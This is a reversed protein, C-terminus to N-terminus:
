KKFFTKISEELPTGKVAELLGEIGGKQFIGQLGGGQAKLNEALIRNTEISGMAIMAEIMHPQIASAKEFTEHISIDSLQKTKDIEFTTVNKRRGLESEAIKDLDGQKALEIDMKKKEALATAEITQLELTSRHLKTTSQETAKQREIDEATKAFNLEEQKKKLELNLQVINHQTNNLLLSIQKDLININLIEVDYILMGNEEFKRGARKGEKSEGLIVNRLIDTAGDNFTEISLKKIHNRVVSRLHQTLLKVYNSVSFWKKADEELFNVRYSLRVEVDVLDQTVANVIDSVVNNQTLLYTTKLLDHDTKPKGTSLELVELTEDYELLITKPGMEVRREGTKKVVQVAYGPWVNITVAGDYKTDLTITRPKTYQNSKQLEDAVSSLMSTSKMLRGSHGVAENVELFDSVGYQATKEQLRQNYNLAEDNGPFLLEISKEDLIRKVIVQNRPDALFMSPGKKLTIEGTDKNLVYRGEGNPIATSYQIMDKGYKVIAHEARPFYIKKEKGTIFMEDGAIYKQGDEEYNAIVKIYIGMNDNLELAKFKTSGGQNIFSETPKPFVVAPGEVYRKVGNQDLLICYELSELTIANRVYKGNDDKLVEIGTPPIYFSVDTGKIIFLKGTIIEDEKILVTKQKTKQDDETAVTKVIASALNEKAAKDNYVRIVLYENSKLQHGGIM